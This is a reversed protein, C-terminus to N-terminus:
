IYGFLYYLKLRVLKLQEIITKLEAIEEEQKQLDLGLPHSSSIATDIDSDKVVDTKDTLATNTRAPCHEQDNQGIRFVNEQSQFSYIIVCM